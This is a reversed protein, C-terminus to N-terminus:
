CYDIPTVISVIQRRIDSDVITAVVQAAIRGGVRRNVGSRVPHIAGKGGGRRPVTGDGLIWNSACGIGKIKSHLPVCAPTWYHSQNAGYTGKGLHSSDLMAGGILVQVRHPVHRAVPRTRRIAENATM